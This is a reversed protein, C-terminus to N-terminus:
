SASCSRILLVGKDLFLVKQVARTRRGILGILKPRETRKDGHLCLKDVRVDAHYSSVLTHRLIEIKIVLIAGQSQKHNHGLYQLQRLAVRQSDALCTLRM